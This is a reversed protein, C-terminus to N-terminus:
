INFQECVDSEASSETYPIGSISTVDQCQLCLVNSRKQEHSQKVIDM